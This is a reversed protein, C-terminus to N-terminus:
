RSPAAFQWGSENRPLSFDVEEKARKRMSGDDGRTLDFRSDATRAVCIVYSTM